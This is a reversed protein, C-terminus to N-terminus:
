PFSPSCLTPISLEAKHTFPVSLRPLIIKLLTITTPPLSFHCSSLISSSSNADSYKSHVFRPHMRPPSPPILIVFMRIPPFRQCLSFNKLFLHNPSQKVSIPYSWSWQYNAETLLFFHWNCQCPCTTYIFSYHCMGLKGTLSVPVRSIALTTYTGRMIGMFLQVNHPPENKPYRLASLKPSCSCFKVLFM